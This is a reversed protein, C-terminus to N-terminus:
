LIQNELCYLVSAALLAVSAIVDVWVVKNISSNYNGTLRALIVFSLMSVLGAIFAAVQWEPMWAAAILFVGLLGFLVSRHSMLILLNSEQIPLGYLALLRESGLVGLVPVLNILGVLVLIVSIIKEL